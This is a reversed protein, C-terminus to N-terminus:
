IEKKEGPAPGVVYGLARLPKALADAAASAAASGVDAQAIATYWYRQRDRAPLTKPDIGLEAVVDPEWRLGRLLAAAERWTLGGSVLAGDDRTVKRGILVHLLGLFRGRAVGAARIAELLERLQDM